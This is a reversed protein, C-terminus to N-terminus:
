ESTGERDPDMRAMMRKQQGYAKKMQEYHAPCLGKWGTRFKLGAEGDAKYHIRGGAHFEGHVFCFQPRGAEGCNKVACLHANTKVVRATFKKDVPSGFLIWRRGEEDPKGPKVEVEITITEDGDPDVLSGRIIIDAGPTVIKLPEAAKPGLKRILRM